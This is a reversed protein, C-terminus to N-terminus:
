QVPEWETIRRQFLSEVKSQAKKPDAVPHVAGIKQRVPLLEAHWRGKEGTAASWIIEVTFPGKPPQILLRVHGKAIRKEESKRDELLAGEFTARYRRPEGTTM